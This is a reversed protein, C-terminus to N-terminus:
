QGGGVKVSINAKEIAKGMADILVEGCLYILSIGGWVVVVPVIWSHDKDAELATYTILTTALWVWFKRSTLKGLFFAWSWKV